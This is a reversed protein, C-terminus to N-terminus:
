SRGRITLAKVAVNRHDKRDKKRIECNSLSSYVVNYTVEDKKNLLTTTVYDYENPLTLFLLAKDEDNFTENLILLNALINNFLNVHDNMSAPAYTFRHIKEKLYLINELNKTM